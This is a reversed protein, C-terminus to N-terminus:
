QTVAIAAKLRAVVAPPTTFVKDVVAQVETGGKPRLALGMRKADAVTAPDALAESFSKRLIELRDAPTGPPVIFPRGYDQQSYMLELAAKDEETKAFDGTLPVHEATLEPDPITSEQALVFFKGSALWDPHAEAISSVSIGCLGAVEGQEIALMMERSGPYGAVIEFKTGLIRNLMLPLERTSGGEASAALRVSYTFADKFSKVKTDSRLVCVFEERNASGVYLLKQPDYPVPKDGILPELVAGPYIEGVATGDKPAVSYIYYALKNSGAGPMNVPVITPHGPIHESWHRALLRAYSDYGGGPTSGIYLTIQKGAFVDDARAQGASGGACLALLIAAGALRMM